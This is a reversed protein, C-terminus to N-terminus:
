SPPQKPVPTLAFTNEAIGPLLEYISRGIAQSFADRLELLARWKAHSVPMPAYRLAVDVMRKELLCFGSAQALADCLMILRDYDDYQCAEVFSRIFDVEGAPVDPAGALQSFDKAPFSHTVCIRAVDEYGLRRMFRYGDIMHRRGNPGVSRGIDHLLGLSEAVDPDLGPHPEALRRAAEGARRSHEVWKGPNRSAAEDLIRRAEDPSPAHPPPPM